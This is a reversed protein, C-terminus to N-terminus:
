RAPEATTAAATDNREAEYEHRAEAYLDQVQEGARAVLEAARDSAALYGVIARKALPKAARTGVFAVVAVAAIGLAVPSEGILLEAAEPLRLM